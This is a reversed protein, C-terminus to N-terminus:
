ATMGLELQKSKPPRGGVGLPQKREAATFRRYITLPSCGLAQAVEQVSSGSDFMILGLKRKADPVKTPMGPRKGSERAVKLGASTREKILEREMEAFSAMIHFFFRGAAGSTDVNDTLSRLGIELKDLRAALQVLGKMDRGLRDLKWVVLVDGSRCYDIAADLQPRDAKAGSVKESFVKECGGAKLAELQARLDQGDTSVRAYGILM